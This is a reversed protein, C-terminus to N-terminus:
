EDLNVSRLRGPLATTELDWPATAPDPGKRGRTRSRSSRVGWLPYSSRPDSCIRHLLAFLGEALACLRGEFAAWTLHARDTTLRTMGRLSASAGPRNPTREDVFYPVLV